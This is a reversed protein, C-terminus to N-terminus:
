PINMCRFYNDNAIDMNLGWEEESKGVSKKVDKQFKFTCRQEINEPSNYQRLFIFVLYSFSSITIILLTIRLFKKEM